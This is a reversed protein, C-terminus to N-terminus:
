YRRGAISNSVTNKIFPTLQSIIKAILDDNTNKVPQPKPTPAVKVPAPTVPLVGNDIFNPEVTRTEEYGDPGATYKVTIM